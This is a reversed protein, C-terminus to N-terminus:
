WNPNHQEYYTVDSDGGSETWAVAAFYFTSGYSVPVMGYYVSTGYGPTSGSHTPDPRYGQGNIGLTFFITAGPTASDMEVYLNNGSGYYLEFSVDDTAQAASPFAVYILFALLAGTLLSAKKM